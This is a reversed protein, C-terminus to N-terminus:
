AKTKLREVMREAAHGDGYPHDVAPPPASGAMAVAERITGADMPCRRINSTVMRGTQREGLDIVHKPFFSAEIYGSSTNGLMMSCHAMCSLYLRAGLSDVATVHAQERALDTWRQRLQLGGTDANPLTVLAQFEGATDRLVQELVSWDREWSARDITEPHYTILLTPRELDVGTRELIERTDFLELERLNDISLAGTLHVGEDHGLMEIVRKRYPEAAVFHMSAAHTIANRFANDIAGKTTEGGHIHAIPIGFPVSAYVASFMEYRDGLAVIRDYTGDKWVATFQEMTAAMALGIDAPADEKLVPPLELLDGSHSARVEDITMGFRPDLHSGFAIVTLQIDPDSALARILPRQIGLDARSSTLLAIRM